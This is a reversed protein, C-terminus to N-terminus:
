FSVAFSTTIFGDTDRLGKSSPYVHDKSKFGRAEVRWLFHESVAYDLNVSAGFTEFGNSTGTSVIVQERDAYYEVRGGVKVSPSVTYRMLLAPSYWSAYTDKSPRKQFGFDFMATAELNKAIRMQAYFDNFIRMQSAVSDPAENGIFTGWNLLVADNPKVQLQTGIAKDGNTERINQWGNLVLVALTATKSIPGSLKVGAEYYPSYDAMLSRSYNWDDRSIASECGIHSAFIGLDLWWSGGPSFGASAEQINQLLSPEAAYNSQVYTGTQLVIRGRVKEAAYKVDVTALNLNFENHRLPQTTFSRDRSPPKAFDYAYYADVFGGVSVKGVSLSDATDARAVRAVLLCSILFIKM